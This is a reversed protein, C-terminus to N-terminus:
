SFMIEIDKNNWLECSALYSSFDEDKVESFFRDIITKLEKETIPEINKDKLNRNHFDVIYDHSYSAWKGGHWDLSDCDFTNFDHNNYIWYENLNKVKFVYIKEKEM